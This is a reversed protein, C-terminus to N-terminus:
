DEMGTVRFGAHRIKYRRNIYLLLPAMSEVAVANKLTGADIGRMGLAGVLTIVENKAADDDGCVLVDGEIAHDLRHLLTHSVHHLAAVVRVGEGLLAQAELAAAGGPPLTVERIKPPVIPVVLDVLIKGQLQDKVAELTAAHAAYPVSLVVIDSQAAAEANIEGSLLDPAPLQQKLEEARLQARDPDRSGIIV